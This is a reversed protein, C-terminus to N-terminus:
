AKKKTLQKKEELPLYGFHAKYCKSFYSASTFGLQFAIESVGLACSQLSEKAKELRQQRIFQNVSLGTLEKVKRYLQSRSLHMYQALSEVSLQPDRLHQQVLQLFIFLFDRDERKLDAAQQEVGLKGLYTSLLHQRNKLLQRLQIKLMEIDFPKHIYVDAGQQLGEARDHDTAKATLLVIPIHATRPNQRLQACLEFGDLNPMVVDSLILDPLTAVAKELGQQGDSAIQLRYFPALADALYGRLDPNDEVILITARPKTSDSGKQPEEVTAAVSLLNALSGAPQQQASELKEAAALHNEGLPFYLSFCSGVGVESTVEVKGKHMEIFAKVMELGIGTSGYYVRQSQKVQYFRLFINELENQPIGPGSDRIHLALAASTATSVQPLIATTQCLALEIQGGEKTFKFANSLLNFIIKEVLGADLYVIPLHDAIELRLDIWKKAAEEKFYPLIDTVLASLDNPSAQLQLKNSNLKQFDMLENVLRELRDANRHITQLKQRAPEPLKTPQLLDRLPQLILTLPTRFEHSINTFFQIKQQHLAETQQQKVTALLLAQRQRVRLRLFFFVAYLLAGVLLLYFLYALQSAYWPPLVIIKLALEPGWQGTKNAAKLRFTYTGDKLSTYNASRRNGVYNWDSELGDLYYAYQLQEAGSYAPSTYEISFVSQWPQFIVEQTYALSKELLGDEKGVKVAENFVLLKSFALHGPPPAAPLEDATLYNVGLQNGFFLQRDTGLLVANYNFDDSLLGEEKSFHRITLGAPEFALRSVGQKGSVWIAADTAQTIACITPQETMLATAAVQEFAKNAAKYRYLGGGDTGIWIAGDRDEFLALVHSFGPHFQQQYTEGSHATIIADERGPKEVSYLGTTTGIWLTNNSDVLLVRIDKETLGHLRFAVRDEQQIKGTTPDFYHLGKGFTAIWIVGNEQAAFSLIRDSQLGGKTTRVSFHEFNQQGAKLRFVGAGWSGVWLDGQKDHFLVQIAKSTLGSYGRTPDLNYYTESALDYRIIGAGDTSILLSHDENAVLSTVSVGEFRETDTGLTLQKFIQASPAHLGIGKDYYGIWLRKAADRHLSWVSNSELTSAGPSKKRIFSPSGFRDVVLLGDNETACIVGGADDDVISLIRNQTYPFAALRGEHQTDTLSLLGGNMTGMWLTHAADMFLSQMPQSLLPSSLDAAALTFDQQGVLLLGRNTAAYRLVGEGNAALDYIEENGGLRKARFLSAKPRDADVAALFLLGHGKTGIWLNGGADKFLRLIHLDALIAGTSLQFALRRFEGRPKDLICLGRDTGVWLRDPGDPLIVEVFNSSMSTSDQWNFSYGEYTNGDFRYLGAGFTGIWLFGHTDTALSKVPRAPFAEEFARITFSRSGTAGKGLLGSLPLVLLLGGVSLLPLAVVLQKFVTLFWPILGRM